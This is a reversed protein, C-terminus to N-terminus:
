KRVFLKNVPILQKPIGPGQYYAELWGSGQGNFYEVRVLHKGPALEVSGSKEIVGHSGDNNVVEKDNIYLKSGDDSQTFFRYRALTDIQLYGEIVLGFSSNGPELLPLIREHSAGIEPETWSPGKKLTGFSPLQERDKLPFFTVNVGNGDGSKGLRFYAVAVPSENGDKDFAKAKVVTTKDLSFPETFVPSSLTPVSGDITYRIESGALGPTIEVVAEKDLYIGGAKKYLNKDPHIVPPAIARFGNWNTSPESFGKFAAKVPRGTWEYPPTVGLAFAITAAYDYAVVQQQIEYGQKIGAGAMIYPVETEEPVFGGHGKGVGGHDSVVMVLTKDAIGAAAIASLVKGILSDAKTVAQYYGETGHGLQHGAHDVHDLHMFGLVPKKDRIYDCFAATTSDETTRRQDFTVAETQYLRGFGPWHYVSGTEAGPRQARLISFITPFRGDKEQIVPPLEHNHIEWDNNIIGHIEPGAGMLMSAWNQSSASTLVTRAKWKVAGASILSDMVPTPAKRVGDPSLGDVGIVIIHEIGSPPGAPERTCSVALLLLGSLLAATKNIESTM